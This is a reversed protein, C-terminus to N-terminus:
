TRPITAKHPNSACTKKPLVVDKSLDTVLSRGKNERLKSHRQPPRATADAPLSDAAHTTKPTRNEMTVAAVVECFVCAMM